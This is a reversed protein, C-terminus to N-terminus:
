PERKHCGMGKSLNVLSNIFNCLSKFLRANGANFFLYLGNREKASAIYVLISYSFVVPMAKERDHKAIKLHLAGYKM